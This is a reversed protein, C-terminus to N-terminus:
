LVISQQVYVETEDSERRYEDPLKEVLLLTKFQFCYNNSLQPTAFCVMTESDTSNLSSIASMLYMEPIVIVYIQYLFEVVLNVAGILVVTRSNDLFPTVHGKYMVM